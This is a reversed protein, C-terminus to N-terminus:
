EFQCLYEGWETDEEESSGIHAIITFFVSIALVVAISILAASLSCMM